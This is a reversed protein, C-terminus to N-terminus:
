CETTSPSKSALNKQMIFYGLEDRFDVVVFGLRLYLSRARVNSKHVGLEIINMRGQYHDILMQLVQTGIGQGQFSPKLILGHLHVTNGREEIWYFGALHEDQYIAYIEGVTKFLHAFQARTIQMIKLSDQLYDSSDTEMLQFLEDYQEVPALNYTLM